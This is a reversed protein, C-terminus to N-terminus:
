NLMLNIMAMVFTIKITSPISLNPSINYKLNTRSFEANDNINIMRSSFDDVIEAFGIAPQPEARFVAYVNQLFSTGVIWTSTEAADNISSTSFLAGYCNKPEGRVGQARFNPPSIPYEIGGFSISFNFQSECPYTYYGAYEGKAAAAGPIRSYVAAVLQGPLGILSTGSDIIVKNSKSNPIIEGNIKLGGTAIQWSSSSTLPSYNIDGKFLTNEVGGLTFVGGSQAANRKTDADQNGNFGAMAISFNKIGANKWFPHSERTLNSDAPFSMGLIGSVSGNYMETSVAPIARFEQKSVNFYSLSVTDYAFSGNESSSNAYPVASQIFTSSKSPQFLAGGLNTDQRSQSSNLTVVWLSTSGTDIQVPLSQPPTGISIKSYYQM